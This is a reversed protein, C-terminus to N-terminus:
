RAAQLKPREVLRGQLLQVARDARSVMERDHTAVLVARGSERALEEFLDMVQRGTEADL